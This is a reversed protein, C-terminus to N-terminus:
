RLIFKIVKIATNQYKNIGSKDDAEHEPKIITQLTRHLMHELNETNTEGADM